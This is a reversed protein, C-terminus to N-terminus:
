LQPPQWHGWSNDDSESKTVHERAKKLTTWSTSIISIHAFCVFTMNTELINWRLLAQNSQKNLKIKKM